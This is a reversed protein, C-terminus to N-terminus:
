PRGFGLLGDRAMPDPPLGSRCSFRELIGQTPAHELNADLGGPTLPGDEAKCRM